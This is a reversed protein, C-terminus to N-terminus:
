GKLRWTIPNINKNVQHQTESVRGVVDLSNFNNLNLNCVLYKQFTYFLAVFFMFIIKTIIPSCLTENLVNNNSIKHIFNDDNVKRM